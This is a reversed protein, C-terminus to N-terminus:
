NKNGMTLGPGPVRGSTDLDLRTEIGKLKAPIGDLMWHPAPKGKLYHDFFQSLRLSYDDASKGTVTHNGDEYELMWVKKGHRRLATFFEIAQSFPVAGDTSTHFILFPTEVKNAKFIPSNKIYLDPREWLTNGLRYQRPEQNSFKGERLWGSHSIIDSVGAGSSAAAFINTHTILYNTEYGGFSHGQIGMRKPDIFKFKSLYKVASVISNYTSQGPEGIKYHIDPTFVLYGNSVYWPINLRGTAPGPQLYANLGDSLLEYYYFIIPYKKTPDFNEPKYLVGQTTNGDLMKWTHLETRLWNYEKEPYLDSLRVFTKFDNTSFYNPSEMASMRFVVFQQSKLAKIPLSGHIDFRSDYLYYMYSGMTLLEPDGKKGIEKSYFGNDKTKRNFAGLLLKTKHSLSDFSGKLLRLEISHRKGYGNTLTVPQKIGKPDVQWIDHQDYLLVFGDNLWGAPEYCDNSIEEPWDRGFKTWKTSVDRTINRIINSRIEYSFWKKKERDYYIVYKGQPSVFCSKGNLEINTLRKGNVLSILCFSQRSASNWNESSAGKTNLIFGWDDSDSITVKENEQELRVVQRTKFGVVSLYEDTEKEMLQESQLKADTYSWINLKVANAKTRIKISKKKLTFFIRGDDRSFRIISGIQLGSDVGSSTENVFMEAKKLGDSYYWIKRKKDDVIFALQTNLNDFQLNSLGSGKWITTSKNKSLDVWNLVQLSGNAENSTTQILLVKGLESLIFNSVSLFLQEKGSILNRLRVEGDQTSSRWVLWEASTKFSNVKEIYEIVSTGLTLIGLKEEKQFLCYRSDATLVSNEASLIEQKWKGDSSQIVITKGGVPQNNLIYFVFNGDNSITAKEVSPWKGYISDEIPTKQSYCIGAEMITALILLFYIVM